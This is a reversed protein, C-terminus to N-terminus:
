TQGASFKIVASHITDYVRRVTGERVNHKEIQLPKM